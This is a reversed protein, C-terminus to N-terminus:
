VIRSLEVPLGQARLERMLRQKWGGAADLPVYVVAHFDTPIDVGEEYLTCVRGRGLKAVFYGLEFIVNQRARPQPRRQSRSRGVDDGTLIVVAYSVASHEELLEVITRGRSTQEALIIAELGLQELFRAVTEKAAINHGHVVFVRPKASPLDHRTQLVSRVVDTIPKSDKRVFIVHSPVKRMEDEIDTRDLVTHMIVPTRCLKTSTLLLNLCRFGARYPDHADSPVPPMTPSPSSWRLMVDLVFLAPPSAEWDSLKRRFESETAVFDCAVEPVDRGLEAAFTSALTVDDEVIAINM